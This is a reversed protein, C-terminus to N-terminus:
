NTPIQASETSRSGVNKRQCQVLLSIPIAINEIAVEFFGENTLVMCGYM